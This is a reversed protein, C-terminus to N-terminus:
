KQTLVHMVESYSLDVTSEIFEMRKAEAGHRASDIIARKEVESVGGEIREMQQILVNFCTFWNKTSYLKSIGEKMLEEAKMFDAFVIRSDSFEGEMLQIRKSNLDHIEIKNVYLKIYLYKEKIM